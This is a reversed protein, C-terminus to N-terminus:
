FVSNAPCLTSYDETATVESTLYPTDGTSTITESETGGEIKINEMTQQIYLKIFSYAKSYSRFKYKRWNELIYLILNDRDEVTM